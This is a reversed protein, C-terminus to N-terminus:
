YVLAPTIIRRPNLKFLRNLIPRASDLATVLINKDHLLNNEDGEPLPLIQPAVFPLYKGHRDLNDDYIGHLFSLSDKMHYALTPLMQAAGFGFSAGELSSFAKLSLLVQDQFSSFNNLIIDKSLCAYEKEQNSHSRNNKSFSFLLTGGWYNYNYTHTIYHCGLREILKHMSQLSFYQLHQHFVQDFRRLNVMTDLSPVEIVFLCNPDSIEVLRYFEKYVNPIHEFTHSSIILDPASTLNNKTLDSVFGGIINLDRDPNAQNIWIPDIGSLDAGLYKLKKLLYTDNCGIELVSKVETSIQKQMFEYFFDNGSRSIHSTSSRHTYTNDYLIEPKLFHKLQGHGCTQCYNLGQDYFFQDDLMASESYLGTLPLRPLDLVTTLSSSHCIECLDVKESDM